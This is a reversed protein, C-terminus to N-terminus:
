RGRSVWDVIAPAFAPDRVAGLHDGDIVLCEADPLFAVLAQPDGVLADDRGVLVLTPVAIERVPAPAAHAGAQQIAALARRDAGTSDAFDRFARAVPNTVTAPDDALLGETLAEVMEPPREITIGAGVGGLVLSRVRPEQPTFHASVIAGMSYGVLDVDDLGLHDFLAGLDQQMAGDAYVEPEHPKASRGHGRADLAVVRRGAGVLADVVGSTVWNGHHDSAFGHHLVVTPGDGRDIYAIDAGDFSRFEEVASGGATTCSATRDHGHPGPMRGWPVDSPVAM